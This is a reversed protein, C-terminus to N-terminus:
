TTSSQEVYHEFFLRAMLEEISMQFKQALIPLHEAKLKNEGTEIRSYGGATQLGIAEAMEQLSINKGIRLRKLEEYNLRM